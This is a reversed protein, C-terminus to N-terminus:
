PSGYIDSECSPKFSGIVALGRLTFCAVSLYMAVEGIQSESYKLSEERPAGM